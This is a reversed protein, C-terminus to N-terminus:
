YDNFPGSAEWAAGQELGGAHLFAADAPVFILAPGDEPCECHHQNVRLVLSATNTDWCAAGFTKNSSPATCAGHRIELRM